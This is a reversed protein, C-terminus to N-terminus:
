ILFRIRNRDRFDLGSVDGATLPIEARSGACIIFPDLHQVSTINEFDEFIVAAACLAYEISRRLIHLIIKRM